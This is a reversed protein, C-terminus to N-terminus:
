KKWLIKKYITRLNIKKPCENVNEKKLLLVISQRKFLM